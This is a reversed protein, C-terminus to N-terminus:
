NWDVVNLLLISVLVFIGLKSCHLISFDNESIMCFKM